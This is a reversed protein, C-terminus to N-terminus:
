LESRDLWEAKDDNREADWEYDDAIERLLSSALPWRALINGADDRYKKELSREQEGGEFVRRQTM